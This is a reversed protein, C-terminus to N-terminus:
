TTMMTVIRALAVRIDRDPAVSRYGMTHHDM